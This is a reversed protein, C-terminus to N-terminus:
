FISFCYVSGSIYICVCVHGYCRLVLARQGVGFFRWTLMCVGARGRDDFDDDCDDYVHVDSSM